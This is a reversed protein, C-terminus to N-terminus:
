IHGAHYYFNTQSKTLKIIMKLDEISFSGKSGADSCIKKTVKGKSYWWHESVQKLTERQLSYSYMFSVQTVLTFSSSPLSSTLNLGKM